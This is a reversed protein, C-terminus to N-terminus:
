YCVINIYRLSVLSIIYSRIKKVSMLLIINNHVFKNLHIMLFSIDKM